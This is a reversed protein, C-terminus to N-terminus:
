GAPSWGSGCTWGGSGGSCERNGGVSIGVSLMLLMLVWDSCGSIQASLEPSFFQGCLIGAALAALILFTM